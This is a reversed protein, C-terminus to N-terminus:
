HGTDTARTQITVRRPPNQETSHNAILEQLQLAGGGIFCFAPCVPASCDVSGEWLVRLSHADYFTLRGKEFDLCLGLRPPLPATLPGSSTNSAGCKPLLIKGMGMTLFCFPPASDQADEAGSDHGSDPDYRPSAMDQPLHFWEQLKAEIGVGVKVLYSGPEVSCAWYHRGQTISVDAVLLDSTLHCSTLARDAAQLLTMGPVSRAYTQGKGLAVREAHLGWRSDLCFSLVPAPPTHLYVEESYEGFGAKNCGRVRLVYVSDMELKDIVASTGGVDDLRQWSCHTGNSGSSGESLVRGWLAGAGGVKRQYEVSYHWAPASDQPLRWCLYLQDYALTKQTDIVPALPAQIFDMSSLTKLERSVDMQFHRFSSDASLSFHQLNEIAKVLRSHTVRAAQVFCSQDTEKLLEQTYTLLGANELLSQKESLQANLTGARQARAGELFMALAGQREALVGRLESVCQNLQEKAVASNVETQAIGSEVQTIQAQVSEQNALIYNMEKTIKEKLTQYALAIPMIKHGSHARRLKCLSCLLRQCSRCYFQLREQEHEVCVLVKPRFNHTPLIHEHQARPTGWPHYLKFCENCFNSRCDACGKTAELAQPPKCFQCMVAMSGLSVAHRFREVIRELTLNRLCDALGREGLEVDKRCTPCPFLMIVPPTDKRRRGPHTGCVTRIVRDLRDTKPPPRRTQRPSRTIPSSTPTNPEPPLEPPPYGRQVLVEAACLVCVSHMCPLVIPQKVMEECVPCHLEREISKMNSSIRVLADMISTFTQLEADAM